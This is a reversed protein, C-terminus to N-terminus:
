RVLMIYVVVVDFLVAGILMKVLWSPLKWGSDTPPPPQVPLEGVTRDASTSRARQQRPRSPIQPPPQAGSTAARSMVSPTIARRERPAAPNPERATEPTSTFSVPSARVRLPERITGDEKKVVEPERSTEPAPKEPSPADGAFPNIEVLQGLNKHKATKKAAEVRRKIAAIQKNKFDADSQLQHALASVSVPLTELEGEAESPLFDDSDWYGLDLLVEEANEYRMELDKEMLRDIICRLNEPIDLHDPLTITPGFAQASLLDLGKKKPLIREGTLMEYAVMGISYLDSSPTLEEARALEPAMYRPTGVVTGESTLHSPVLQNTEKVLKAIGFDLLKVQDKRGLHTFLMINDPKIDRHMVGLSHAEQVSCLLKDLIRVVRVPAFKGERSLHTKLSDGEIYEVVMYLLGDTAGYDYMTITGPDRLQSILKAEQEFRKILTRAKSAPIHDSELALTAKLIKIAVKRDLGEQHALFVYAHGGAGIPEELRYRGDLLYGPQLEGLNM